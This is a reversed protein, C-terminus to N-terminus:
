AVAGPRVPVLDGLDFTDAWEGDGSLGTQVNVSGDCEHVGTERSQCCGADHLVGTVAQAVGDIVVRDGLRLDQARKAGRAVAVLRLLERALWEADDLGLHAEECQGPTSANPALYITPEGIHGDQDEREIALYVTDARGAPQEDHRSCRPDGTSVVVFASDHCADGPEFHWDQDGVCWPLSDPCTRAADQRRKDYEAATAQPTAAPRDLTTTM